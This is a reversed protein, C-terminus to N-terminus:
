LLRTVVNQPVGNFRRTVWLPFPVEEYGMRGAGEQGVGPHPPEVVRRAATDTFPPVGHFITCLKEFCQPLSGDFVDTHLVGDHVGMGLFDNPNFLRLDNLGPLEAVTFDLGGAQPQLVQRWQLWRLHDMSPFGPHM